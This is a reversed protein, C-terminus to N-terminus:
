LSYNDLWDELARVFVDHYQQEYYNVKAWELALDGMAAFDVMEPREIFCQLVGGRQVEDLNNFFTVKKVENNSIPNCIIEETLQQKAPPIKVSLAAITKTLLEKEAELTTRYPDVESNKRVEEIHFKWFPSTSTLVSQLYAYINKYIGTFSFNNKEKKELLVNILRLRHRYPILEYWNPESFNIADLDFRIIPRQAPFYVNVNHAQVQAGQQYILDIKGSNLNSATPSSSGSATTTSLMNPSGSAIPLEILTAKLFLRPPSIITETPNGSTTGSTKPTTLAEQSDHTTSTKNSSTNTLTQQILETPTSDTPAAPTPPTPTENSPTTPVTPQVPTVTSPANAQTGSSDSPTQPQSPITNSAITPEAPQIPTQPQTPTENSPTTPVTPQVPTVTSPANAQTGSSDSPTQPQSPITNSAITPETPQVPIQPQTPATNSAITSIAPTQPQTPTANSATTSETPQLVPIQPQTPATNSIATPVTPQFPTSPPQPSSTQSTLPLSYQPPPSQPTPTQHFDAQTFSNSQSPTPTRVTQSSTPTIRAFYTAQTKEWVEEELHNWVQSAQITAPDQGSLCLTPAMARVFSAPAFQAIRFQHSITTQNTLQLGSSTITQVSYPGEGLADWRAKHANLLIWTLDRIKRISETNGTPLYVRQQGDPTLYYAVATYTEGFLNLRMIEGASRQASASNDSSAAQITAM